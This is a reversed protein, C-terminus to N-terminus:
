RCISSSFFLMASGLTGRQVAAETSVPILCHLIDSIHRVAYNVGFLFTLRTDSVFSQHSGICDHSGMLIRNDGFYSREGKTLRFFFAIGDM